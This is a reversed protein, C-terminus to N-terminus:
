VRDIGDRGLRAGDVSLEARDGSLPAVDVIVRAGGMALEGLEHSIAKGLKDAAQHRKKSLRRAREAAAALQAAQQQELAVITSGASAFRELEDALRQRAAIVGDLSRWDESRDLTAGHQRILGELRYMREEVEALRSPDVAAREAYRALDRGVESLETRANEVSVAAAGLAPDLEAAKELDSALRALEDCLTEDGQELRDAARRSVELLQGAHRLRNRELALEEMEDPRPALADISQLQFAVFAEREGRERDALRAAALRSATEELREVDASLEEREGSLRAFLDLYGLHTAPDTLAVSEHQSAVDCLHPALRALEAATCLRGNLYARSRGSSQVVRRVVLEGDGPIGAADLIAALRDDGRVEFLAEVEAEEAGPRVMEASARGGLVLGLAGVIISKGAGTEGTIVNFGPELKLELADMLIFSQVRLLSLM